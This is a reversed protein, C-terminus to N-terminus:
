GFNLFEDHVSGAVFNEGGKTLLSLYQPDTFLKGWAKEMAALGEYQSVFFIRNPNGGYPFAIKVDVGAKSKCLECVERSWPLVAAVKGPAISASRIQTLM